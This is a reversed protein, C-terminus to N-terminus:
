VSKRFSYRRWRCCKVWCAGKAVKMQNTQREFM